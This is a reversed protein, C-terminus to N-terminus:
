DTDNKENNQEKLQEELWDANFRRIWISDKEYEVFSIQAGRFSLISKMQNIADARGKQYSDYCGSCGNSIEPCYFDKKSVMAM